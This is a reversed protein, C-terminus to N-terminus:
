KNSWKELCTLWTIVVLTGTVPLTCIIIFPIFNMISETM